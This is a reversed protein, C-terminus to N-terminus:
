IGVPCLSPYHQVFHICIAFRPSAVSCELRYVMRQQESLRQQELFDKTATESLSRGKISVQKIAHYYLKDQQQKQQKGILHIQLLSASKLNNIAQCKVQSLPLHLLAALDRLDDQHGNCESVCQEFIHTSM